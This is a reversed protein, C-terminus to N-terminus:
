LSRRHYKIGSSISLARYLQEYLVLRALEHGLTVPGFSLRLDAAELVQPALGLDSGLLFAVPHPWDIALRDLRRALATSSHAKGRRDLAVTWCPDPLAATLARGEEDRRRVDDGGGPGRVRRDDLRAFRRCREAYDACLAEWGRRRRRGVWLIRYDRAM